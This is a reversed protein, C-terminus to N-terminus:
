HQKSMKKEYRWFSNKVSSKDTHLVKAIYGYGIEKGNEDFTGRLPYWELIEEDTLRRPASSQNCSAESVTSATVEESAFCQQYPTKAYKFLYSEMCYNAIYITMEKIAKRIKRQSSSPNGAMMHLVIGCHFAICAMRLRDDKREQVDFIKSQEYQSNNWDELADCIYDLDVKTEPCPIDNGAADTHYCYTSRWTDIQDKLEKLETGNPYSVMPPIRDVEPLIAFIIRSATGGEVEDKDIFKEVDVPTGTFTFNFFVPFSGCAADKSKNDQFTIENYLAKRILDFSLGNKKKFVNSVTQLESENAYVHVGNNHSLIDYFRSQSINIGAIQIISDQKGNIKSNDRAMVRNFLVNSMKPICGKGSGHVGEVIVQLNPAHTHGDLYDARVKSFCVAGCESLLHFMMADEYEKPCKDLVSALFPISSYDPMPFRSHFSDNWGRLNMRPTSLTPETGQQRLTTMITREEIRIKSFAEAKRIDNDTKNDDVAIQDKSAEHGENIKNASKANYAKITGETKNNESWKKGLYYGGGLILAGGIIPLLFKTTDEMPAKGEYALNRGKGIGAEIRCTSNESTRSNAMFRNLQNKM